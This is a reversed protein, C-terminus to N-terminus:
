AALPADLLSCRALWPGHGRVAGALAWV